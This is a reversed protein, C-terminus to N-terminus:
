KKWAEECTEVFPVKENLFYDEFLCKSEQYTKGNFEYFRVTTEYGSAHGKLVFNRYKNKKNKSLEFWKNTGDNYANSQLLKKYVSKKKEYIWVDCNGTAGCLNGNNGWFIFEKQGDDNLDVKEIDFMESCDANMYFNETREQFYKDKKLEKWVPIIKKDRCTPKHLKPIYEPENLKRIASGSGFGRGVNKEKQTETSITKEKLTIPEKTTWHIKIVVLSGIGFALLAVAFYILYRRM